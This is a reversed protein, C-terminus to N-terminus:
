QNMKEKLIELAQDIQKQHWRELMLTGHSDIYEKDKEEDFEAFSHDPNLGRKGEEDELGVDTMKPTLYVATSLFLASKRPLEIVTQVKSKGFTHQGCVEARNREKLAGAVIESASASGPDVLCVVPMDEVILTGESANLTQPESNRGKILVVPGGDFFFSGIDVAVDLLGGPNMSMDFLLAKM